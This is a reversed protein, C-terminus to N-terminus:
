GCGVRYALQPTYSVDVRWYSHLLMQFEFAEKGQNTVNLMTQLGDKALTVSYM